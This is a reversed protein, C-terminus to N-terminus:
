RPDPLDPLGAQAATVLPEFRRRTAEAHQRLADNVAEAILPGLGDPGYRRLAEPAVKIERFAAAGRLTATVDGHRSRGVVELRQLTTQIEEVQRQQDRLRGLLDDIEFM